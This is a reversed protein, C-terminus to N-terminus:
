DQSKEIAAPAGFYKKLRATDFKLKRDYTYVGNVEQEVDTLQTYCYGAINPHDTLILTLKGILEKLSSWNKMFEGQM